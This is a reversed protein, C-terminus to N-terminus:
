LEINLRSFDYLAASYESCTLEPNELVRKLRAVREHTSTSNKVARAMKARKLTLFSFLGTCKPHINENTEVNLDALGKVGDKSLRLFCDYNRQVYDENFCENCILDSMDGDDSRKGSCNEMCDSCILHGRPCLECSEVKVEKCKLCRLKAYHKLLQVERQLFAINNRMANLESTNQARQQIKKRLTNRIMNQYERFEESAHVPEYAVPSQASIDTEGAPANPEEFQVAIMPVVPDEAPPLERLIEEEEEDSLQYRLRKYKPPSPPEDAAAAYYPALVIDNENSAVEILRQTAQEKTAFREPIDLFSTGVFYTQTSADYKIAFANWWATAMDWAKDLAHFLQRMHEPLQHFGKERHLLGFTYVTEVPSRQERKVVLPLGPVLSYPCSRGLARIIKEPPPSRSGSGSSSITRAM